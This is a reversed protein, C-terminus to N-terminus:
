VVLGFPRATLGLRLSRRHGARSRSFFLFFTCVFIISFFLIQLRLMSIVSMLYRLFFFYVNILILMFSFRYFLYTYICFIIINNIINNYIYVYIIIIYM